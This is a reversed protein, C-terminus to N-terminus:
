RIKNKCRFKTTQSDRRIGCKERERRLLLYSFFLFFSRQFGAVFHLLHSEVVVSVEIDFAQRMAFLLTYETNQMYLKASSVVYNREFLITSETACVWVWVRASVSVHANCAKNPRVLLTNQVKQKVIFKIKLVRVVSLACWGYIYRVACLACASRVCSKCNEPTNPLAWRLQAAAAAVAAAAAAATAPQRCCRRRRRCWLWKLWLAVAFM